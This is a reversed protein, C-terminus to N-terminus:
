GTELVLLAEELDSCVVKRLGAVVKRDSSLGTSKFLLARRKQPNSGSLLDFIRDNHVEYMSIVIAYEATQDVSIALDNIPPYTPLTSM